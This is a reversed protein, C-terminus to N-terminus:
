VDMERNIVTTGDAIKTKKEEDTLESKNVFDTYWEIMKAKLDLESTKATASANVIDDTYIYAKVIDEQREPVQYDIDLILAAAYAYNEQLMYQEFLVPKSTVDELELLVELSDNERVRAILEEAGKPYIDLAESYMKSDLYINFVAKKEQKTLELKPNADM